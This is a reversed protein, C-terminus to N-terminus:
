RATREAKAAALFVKKRVGVAKGTRGCTRTRQGRVKLGLSHRIGRWCRLAKLFDIDLKTQFALESGSLHKNLGSELTKRRNYIFDPVGYKEPAIIIDEIKKVDEAKLMGIKMNRDLNAINIIASSFNLGLGKIKSFGYALKKSGNVDTGCIRVIHRFDESM